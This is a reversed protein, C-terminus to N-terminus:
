VGEGSTPAPADTDLGLHARITAVTRVCAPDTLMERTRPRALPVELETIVRGPHTGMVIIRDSLFTAEFLNHTVFICTLAADRWINLLEQNMQERKFEDLASFPEDLCLLKTKLLLARAIAVRQQMGGSLESPFQAEAGQLGVMALLDRARQKLEERREIVGAGAASRGFRIRRPPPRLEAPLLVNDLATRWPLLIPQQFVVGPRDLGDKGINLSLSGETPDLLGIVVNLITTKGCGSPGVISLFEGDRVTLNVGQVAVVPQGDRPYYTKGLNQLRVVVDRPVSDTM